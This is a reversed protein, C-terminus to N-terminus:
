KASVAAWMKISGSVLLEDAEGSCSPLWNGSSYSIKSLSENFFIPMAKESACRLSNETSISYLEADSQARTSIVSELRQAPLMYLVCFLVIMGLGPTPGVFGGQLSTSTREPLLSGRLHLLIPVLDAIFGAQASRNM